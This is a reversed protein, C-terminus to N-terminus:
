NVLFMLIVSILNNIFHIGISVWINKSLYYALSFVSGMVLYPLINIIDGSILVHILGFLLVSVCIALVKNKFINFLALRFVLEEVLPALFIATLVIIWPFEGFMSEILAQNASVGGGLLTTVISALINGVFVIGVGAFVMIINRKQTMLSLGLKLEKKFIFIGSIAVSTLLFLDVLMLSLTNVETPDQKFVMTAAVMIAVGIIINLIVYTLYIGLMIIPRKKGIEEM